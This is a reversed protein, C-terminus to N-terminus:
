KQEEYSALRFGLGRETVIINKGVKKRLNFLHVNLANSSVDENVGYLYDKLHNEDLIRNPNSLFAVLLKLESASLALRKDGLQAVKSNSDYKLEGYQLYSNQQHTFRRYVSKIRAMLEEFDFPKTVYDDAGDNLGQVKDEIADKATLLIIPLALKKKRVVKILELGSGDPLSIDLLCIDFSCVAVYHIAESLTAAHTVQMIANGLYVCIADAIIPDDEVLLIKM